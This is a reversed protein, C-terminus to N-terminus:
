CEFAERVANDWAAALTWLWPMCCVGLGIGVSTLMLAEAIQAIM